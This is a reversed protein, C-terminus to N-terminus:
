AQRGAEAESSRDTAVRGYVGIMDSVGDAAHYTEESSPFRGGRVDDAFRAVADRADRGIAAYRRVFKPAKADDFGLLDHFVLVQGDCHRGAGIGITPVDVTDTVLRAVADPVCELVIAFCGAEALAAADDVIRRADDLEKGQVRFGGLAHVSQPTLGLHGMVPIEADLIARVADLRKAGGELKVAGAGARVLRAANRVTDSTSVHYSLWPLDGVVLAGPKARAVAGVHHAMDDITVQLTDAYGLVVNAVSDGVLIVDVGAEDLIRATPADYATVMVVPEASGKRAAIAPATM